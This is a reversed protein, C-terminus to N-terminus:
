RTFANREPKSTSGVKMAAHQSPATAATPLIHASASRSLFMESMASAIREFRLHGVLRSAAFACAGRGSSQTSRRGTYAV